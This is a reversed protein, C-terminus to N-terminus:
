KIVAWCHQLRAKWKKEKFYKHTFHRIHLYMKKKKYLLMLMHLVEYSPLRLIETDGAFESKTWRQNFKIKLFVGFGFYDAIKSGLQTHKLVGVTQQLWQM